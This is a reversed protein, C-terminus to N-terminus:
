VYCNEKRVYSNKDIKDISKYEKLMLPYSSLLRRSQDSPEIAIATIQDDLDPERFISYKINNKQLKEILNKLDDEDACSLQALYPEKIWLKAIEPHEFVFQIAAHSAM